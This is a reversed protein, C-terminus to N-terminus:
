SDDRIILSVNKGRLERLRLWGSSEPRVMIATNQGIAFMGDAMEHDSSSLHGMGIVYTPKERAHALTALPAILFDRRRIM